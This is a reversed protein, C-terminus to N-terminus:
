QLPECICFVFVLAHDMLERLDRVLCLFHAFLSAVEFM